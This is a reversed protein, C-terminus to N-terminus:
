NNLSKVSSSFLNFLNIAVIIEHFMLELDV